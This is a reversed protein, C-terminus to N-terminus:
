HSHMTGIRRVAPSIGNLTKLARVIAHFYDQIMGIFIVQTAIGLILALEPQGV